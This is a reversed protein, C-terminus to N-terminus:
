QAPVELEMLDVLDPSLTGVISQDLLVVPAGTQDCAYLQEQHQAGIRLAALQDGQGRLVAESRPSSLGYKALNRPSEEVFSEARLSSLSSLISEVKWGKVASSEPAVMFWQDATDKQCVITRDPSELEVQDVQEKPFHLVLKDRLDFTTKDLEKVMSAPILFIPNRSEDRAYRDDGSEKGVLLRKQARDPGLTLTITLWPQHLGYPALDEPEEEVFSKVRATKLRRLLSQVASEDGKVQLPKELMWGQPGKNLEVTQRGRRLTLGNVEAEEFALLSKDRLDFVEKKAQTLLGVPTLFVPPEGEKKAYVYTGTPNRGGLHLTQKWGDESELEVSVQPPSLGFDALNEGTESVVREMQAGQLARIIGQIIPEDGRADVPQIIRWGEETRQCAITEEPFGLTLRQIDGQDFLYIKKAQEAARERKEGGKIEYFFVFAALALLAIAWFLTGKFKM